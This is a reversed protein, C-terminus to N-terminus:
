PRPRDCQQGGMDALSKGHGKLLLLKMHPRLLKWSCVNRAVKVTQGGKKQEITIQKSGHLAFEICEAIVNNVVEEKPETIGCADLAFNIFNNVDDLFTAERIQGDADVMTSHIVEKVKNGAKSKGKAETKAKM